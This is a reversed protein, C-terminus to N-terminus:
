VPCTEWKIDIDAALIQQRATKGESMGIESNAGAEALMRIVAMNGVDIAELLATKGTKTKKNVDLRKLGLLRKVTLPDCLRIALLLPFDDTPGLNPDLRAQALLLRTIPYLNFYICLWLATRGKNDQSNIDVEGPMRVVHKAFKLATRMDQCRGAAALLPTCGDNDREDIKVRPDALLIDLLIGRDFSEFLKEEFLMRLPTHGLADKANPDAGAELLAQMIKPQHHLCALHLTSHMESLSGVTNPDAGHALLLKVRRYAMEQRADSGWSAKIAEGMLSSGYTRRWVHDRLHSLTQQILKRLACGLLGDKSVLLQISKVNKNGVMAYLQIINWPATEPVDSLVDIAKIFSTRKNRRLSREFARLDQMERRCLPGSLLHCLERNARCSNYLEKDSLELEILLILEAPLDLISKGGLQSRCYRELLPSALDVTKQIAKKVRYDKHTWIRPYCGLKNNSQTALKAFTSGTDYNQAIFAILVRQDQHLSGTWSREAQFFAELLHALRIAEAPLKPLTPIDSKTM